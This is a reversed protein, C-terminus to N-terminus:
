FRQCFSIQTVIRYVQRRLKFVSLVDLIPPSTIDHLLLIGCDRPPKSVWWQWDRGSGGWSYGTFCENKLLLMSTRARKEKGAVPVPGLKFLIESCFTEGLFFHATPSFFFPPVLRM